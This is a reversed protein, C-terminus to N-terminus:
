SPSLNPHGWWLLLLLHFWPRHPFKTPNEGNDQFSKRILILPPKPPTKYSFSPPLSLCIHHTHNPTFIVHTIEKINQM